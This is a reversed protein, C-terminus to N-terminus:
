SRINLQNEAYYGSWSIYKENDLIGKNYIGQVHQLWKTQSLHICKILAKLKSQRPSSYKKIILAPPIDTYLGPLLKATKMGSVNTM